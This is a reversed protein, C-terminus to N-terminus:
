HRLQKPAIMWHLTARANLPDLRLATEVFTIGEQAEGAACLIFGHYTLVYPDNPTL